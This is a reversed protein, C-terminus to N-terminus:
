IDLGKILKKIRKLVKATEADICAMREKDKLITDVMPEVEGLVKEYENHKAILGLKEEYEELERRAKNLSIHVAQRSVGISDAIESLSFNEEHYLDFVERQRETLLTGYFDYLISYEENTKREM